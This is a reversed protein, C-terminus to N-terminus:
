YANLDRLCREIKVVAAMRAPSVEPTKAFENIADWLAIRRPDLVPGPKALNAEFVNPKGPVPYHDIAVPGKAAFALADDIPKVSEEFSPGGPIVSEEWTPAPPEDELVDHDIIEVPVNDPNSTVDAVGRHVEVVVPAPSGFRIEASDSAITTSVVPPVELDHRALYYAGWPSECEAYQKRLAHNADSWGPYPEGKPGMLEWETRLVEELHAIAEDYHVFVHPVCPDTSGPITACVLWITLM